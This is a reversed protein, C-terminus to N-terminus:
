TVVFTIVRVIGLYLTYLIAPLEFYCSIALLWCCLISSFSVCSFLFIRKFLRVFRQKHLFHPFTGLLDSSLMLVPFPVCTRESSDFAGANTKFCALTPILEIFISAALLVFHKLLQRLIQLHSLVLNPRWLDPLWGRWCDSFGNANMYKVMCLRPDLPCFFKILKIRRVNELDIDLCIEIQTPIMNLISLVISRGAHRWHRMSKVYRCICWMLQKAELAVYQRTTRDISQTHGHRQVLQICWGWWWRQLCRREM